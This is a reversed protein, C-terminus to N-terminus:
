LCKICVSTKLDTPYIGPSYKAECIVELSDFKWLTQAMRGTKIHIEKIIIHRKM